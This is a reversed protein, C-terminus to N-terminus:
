QSGLKNYRTHVSRALPMKKQPNQTPLQSGFLLFGTRMVAHVGHSIHTEVENNWEFYNHTKVFVILYQIVM